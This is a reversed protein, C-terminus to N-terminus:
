GSSVRGGSRWRLNHKGKKGKPTKKAKAGKKGGRTGTRGNEAPHHIGNPTYGNSLFVQNKNEDIEKVIKEGASYEDTLVYNFLAMSALVGLFPGCWYVVVHELLSHGKCNYTTATALAPNVNMGTWSLGTVHFLPLFVCSFFYIYTIVQRCRCLAM